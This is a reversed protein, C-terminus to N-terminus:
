TVRLDNVIRVGCGGLSVHGEGRKRVESGLHLRIRIIGAIRWREVLGM